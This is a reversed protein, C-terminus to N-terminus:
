ILEHNRDKWNSGWAYQSLIQWIFDWLDWRQFTKLILTNAKRILIGAKKKESLIGITSFLNPLYGFHSCSLISFLISYLILFFFSFFKVFIWLFSSFFLEILILPRFLGFLFPATFDLYFNPFTFWNFFFCEWSWWTSNRDFVHVLTIIAFSLLFHEWSKFNFMNQYQAGLFDCNQPQYSCGPIVSPWWCSIEM